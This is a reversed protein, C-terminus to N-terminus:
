RLRALFDFSKMKPLQQQIKEGLRRYEFTEPQLTSTGFNVGTCVCSAFFGQSSFDTSFYNLIADPTLKWPEHIECTFHMRPAFFISGLRQGYDTAPRWSIKTEPNLDSNIFASLQRFDQEESSNKPLGAEEVIIALRKALDQEEIKPVTELKPPLKSLSSTLRQLNLRSAPNNLNYRARLSDFGQDFMLRKIELM